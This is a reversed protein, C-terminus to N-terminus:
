VLLCPWPPGNPGCTMSHPLIWILRRPLDSTSSAGCRSATSFCRAPVFCKNTLSSLGDIKLDNGRFHACRAPDFLGPDWVIVDNKERLLLGTERRDVGIVNRRSKQTEVTPLSVVDLKEFSFFCVVVANGHPQPCTWGLQRRRKPLCVVAGECPWLFRRVSQPSSRRLLSRSRHENARSKQREEWQRAEESRRHSARHSDAPATDKIKKLIGIIGGGSPRIGM